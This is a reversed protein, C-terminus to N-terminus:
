TRGGSVLVSASVPPPKQPTGLLALKKEHASLVGSDHKDAEAYKRAAHSLDGENELAQGWLEYAPAFDPRLEVARALRAIAAENQGTDVLAEAWDHLINVDDKHMTDARNFASLAEDCRHAHLLVDGLLRQNESTSYKEHAGTRLERIAADIRKEQELAVGLNARLVGSHPYLLLADRSQQEAEEARNQRLLLWGQGALAWLRERSGPRRLVDDYIAELESYDCQDLSCQTSQVKTFLHSALTNPEVLRMIKAAIDQMAKDFDNASFAVDDYMRDFPGNEIQIHAIYSDASNGSHTIGIHVIVDPKDRFFTSKLFGVISAYSMDEGPITINPEDGDDLSADHPIADSEGSIGRMAALIRQALFEPTYGTNVLAKPAEVPPVQVHQTRAGSIVLLFFPAALVLIFWPLVFPWLVSPARAIWRILLWVQLLGGPGRDAVSSM